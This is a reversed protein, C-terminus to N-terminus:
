RWLRARRKAKALLAEDFSALEFGRPQPPDARWGLAHLVREAECYDALVLVILQEFAAGAEGEIAQMTAVRAAEDAAVFAAEGGGRAAIAALVRGLSERDRHVRLYEALAQSVGAASGSPLVDDAPLLTDVVTSLFAETM